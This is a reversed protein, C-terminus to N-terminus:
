GNCQTSLPKKFYFSMDNMEPFNKSNNIQNGKIWNMRNKIERAAIKSIIFKRSQNKNKFDTNGIERRQEKQETKQYILKIKWVEIASIIEVIM